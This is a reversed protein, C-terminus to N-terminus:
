RHRGLFFISVVGAGTHAGIVPGVHNIVVEKVGFRAKIDDAVKQADELCDGHSVFPTQSGPDIALEEMKDYDVRGTEPDLGYPVAHYLLGSANVPSGHTLHGGQSLDLGLFTDGPRLVAMTVAMNAQAGSHPQVNAHEARFLRVARERALDEVVDVYRCGGYYRHGPYGEAYKNTLVSAHAARVAESVYNESAILEITDSQRRAEDALAEALQPDVAAIAERAARDVSWEAAAGRSGPEESTAQMM